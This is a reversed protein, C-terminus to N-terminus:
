DEDGGWDWRERLYLPLLFVGGALVFLVLEFLKLADERDM